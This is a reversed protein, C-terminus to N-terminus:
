MPYDIRILEGSYADIHVIGGQLIYDKPAGTVSCIWILRQVGSEDYGVKLRSDTHEIIIGPFQDIAILEAKEQTIENELSVIIPRTISIYHIVAGTTPNISVFIFSPGEIEGIYTRWLFNYTSIDGGDMLENMVLSFNHLKIERDHAEIFSEAIGIAEKKTILDTKCNDLDDYSSYREVKYSDSNVWYETNKNFLVIYKAHPIYEYGYMDIEANYDGKFQKVSNIANDNENFAISISLAPLCFGILICVVLTYYKIKMNSGEECWEM